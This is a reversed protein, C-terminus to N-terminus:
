RGVDPLVVPRPGLSGPRVSSAQFESAIIAKVQAVRDDLTGSVVYFATGRVGLDRLVMAQMRARWIENDRWGDQEFAIDDDCVIV